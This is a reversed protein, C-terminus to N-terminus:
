ERPGQFLLANFILLLLFVSCFIKSEVIRRFTKLPYTSALKLFAQHHSSKLKEMSRLHFINELFGDDDLEFPTGYPFPATPCVACHPLPPKLKHHPSFPWNPHFMKQFLLHSLFQAFFYHLFQFSLFHAEFPTGINEHSPIYLKFFYYISLLFFFIAQFMTVRALRNENM